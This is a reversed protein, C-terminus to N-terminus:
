ESGELSVQLTAIHRARRLIAEDVMEGDVASAGADTAQALLRQAWEVEAATPSYHTNIAPVQTPHISLKGGFGLARGSRCEEALLSEDQVKTVVGDIPAAIGAAASAFVLTSRAWQLGPWNDHSLGVDAALDGNGFAARKVGRTSCIDVAEFVGQASEIIPLLFSDPRLCRAVVATSQATAKPLMIGAGIAEAFAAIDHAYAETGPPNIRVVGRGGAAKWDAVRQRATDKDEEAVGDELDLVIEDAGSASAKEFRDSRAGPVFLMSRATVASM